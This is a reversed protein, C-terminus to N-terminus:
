AILPVFKVAELKETKVGTETRELLVLYQEDETGIPAIMRGGIALQDILTPAIDKATATVMIADYPAYQKWGKIGNACRFYINNFNLQRLLHKASNHLSMIREITFVIPVISALVAAQYGSGTGIELVKKPRGKAMLQQTMYAVIYPQSITQKHHIPLSRNDYAFNSIDKDMFLHRPIIAMANLIEENDIGQAQLEDVLELKKQKFYDDKVQARTM